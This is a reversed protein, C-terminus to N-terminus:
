PRTRHTCGDAEGRRSNARQGRACRCGAVIRGCRLGRVRRRSRRVARPHVVRRIAVVPRRGPGRAIRATRALRLRRNVQRARHRPRVRVGGRQAHHASRGGRARARRAACPVGTSASRADATARPRSREGHRAPRTPHRRWRPGRLYRGSPSPARSCCPVTKRSQPQTPRRSSHIRPPSCTSRGPSFFHLTCVTSRRILILINNIIIIIRCQLIGSPGRRSSGRTKRRQTQASGVDDGVGAGCRSM